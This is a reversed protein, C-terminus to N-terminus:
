DNCRPALPANQEGCAEIFSRIRDQCELCEPDNQVNLDDCLSDANDCIASTQAHAPLIVGEVIPTVWTAPLTVALGKLVKRRSKQKM